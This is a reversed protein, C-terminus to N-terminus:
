TATSQAALLLKIPLNKNAQQNIIYLSVALSLHLVDKQKWKNNFVCTVSTPLTMCCMSLSHFIMAHLLLVPADQIQFSKEGQQVLTWELHLKSKLMFFQKKEKGHHFGYGVQQLKHLFYKWYVFYLASNWSSLPLTMLIFAISSWCIHGLGEATDDIMFKDKETTRLWYTRSGQPYCFKSHPTQLDMHVNLILLSFLYYTM